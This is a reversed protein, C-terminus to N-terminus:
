HKMIMVILAIIYMMYLLIVILLNMHKFKTNKVINPHKKIIHLFYYPVGM